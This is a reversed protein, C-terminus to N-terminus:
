TITVLDWHYIPHEKLHWQCGKQGMIFILTNHDMNFQQEHSSMPNSRMWKPEEEKQYYGSEEGYPMMLVLAMDQEKDGEQAVLRVLSTRPLPPQRELVPMPREGELVVNPVGGM